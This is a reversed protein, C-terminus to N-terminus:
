QQQRHLFGEGSVQLHWSRPLCSVAGLSPGTLSRASVPLRMQGDGERDRQGKSGLSAARQHFGWAVVIVVVITPQLPHETSAICCSVVRWAPFLGPLLSGTAGDGVAALSGSLLGRHHAYPLM